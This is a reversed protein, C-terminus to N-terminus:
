AFYRSSYAFPVAWTWRKMQVKTVRGEESDALEVPYVHQGDGFRVYVHGADLEEDREAVAQALTRNDEM